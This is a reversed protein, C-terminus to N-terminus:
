EILKLRLAKAVLQTRNVCDLKRIANALYANITHDSLGLIGGIEFSTKGEATWKVVELERASLINRAKENYNCIEDYRCFAQLAILLLENRETEPLPTRNGLFFLGLREHESTTFSFGNGMTLEMRIMLRELRQSAPNEPTVLDRITWRVHLFPRELARRVKIGPMLGHREYCKLVELAISSMKVQPSIFTTTQSPLEMLIFDHFDFMRAADLLVQHLADLTKAENACHQLGRQIDQTSFDM